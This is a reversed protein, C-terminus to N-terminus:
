SSTKWNVLFLRETARTFATYLWHIYDSTVMEDTMYGQDVYVHSWQGGQAKHCTVAYAYKVQLANYHKDERMMKMRDEKRPLDAYDESVKEYLERQKETSLAPSESHLTDLLTTLEMERNDYDPFEVVLDAFQFGYLERQRHVRRVRIRDGNAILWTSVNSQKHVDTQSESANEEELKVYKNKVVMLYDGSAIEDERDLIRYRIGDNYRNATKNSRTVVITEDLGVQRFSDDLTEILEAGSVVVIDAFGELHLQPIGALHSGFVMQRIITANYLIGSSAAQRVVENLDAEFVEMGYGHLFDTSLAPSETEGVPPLQAKDGVFMLRCNKDNYVYQVLDDLLRGSGFANDGYGENAIMSAEDVIFLTHQHLNVNLNFLADEGARQQRYITRHITSAPYHCMSSFVKAARGTPALLVVRRELAVLARVISSALSTKGTGACGRVVMMTREDSSHYFESFVDIVVRQEDTPVHSFLSLIQETM